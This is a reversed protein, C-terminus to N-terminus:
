AVYQLGRIGLMEVLGVVSIVEAYPCAVEWLGSVFGQVGELVM